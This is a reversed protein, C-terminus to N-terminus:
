GPIGIDSVVAGVRGLQTEIGAPSDVNDAVRIGQVSASCRAGRTTFVPSIHAPHAFLLVPVPSTRVAISSSQVAFRKVLIGKGRRMLASERVLLCHDGQSTDWGM